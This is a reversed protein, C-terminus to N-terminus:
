QSLGKRSTRLYVPWSRAWARGLRSLDQSLASSGFSLRRVLFHPRLGGRVAGTHRMHAAGRHNVLLVPLTEPAHRASIGFFVCLFDACNSSFLSQRSPSNPFAYLCRVREGHARFLEDSRTLSRGSAQLNALRPRSNDRDSRPLGSVPIAEVRRRSKSSAPDTLRGPKPM